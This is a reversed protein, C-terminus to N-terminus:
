KKDGFIHTHGLRAGNLLVRIESRFFGAIEQAPIAHWLRSQEKSEITAWNGLSALPGKLGRFPIFSL